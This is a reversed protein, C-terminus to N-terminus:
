KRNRLVREMGALTELAEAENMEPDRFRTFKECMLDPCRGCHPLSRENMCCDYVPCCEVGAYGIWFPKGETPKCGACENGRHHCDSCSYGCPNEIKKGAMREFIEQYCFLSIAHM